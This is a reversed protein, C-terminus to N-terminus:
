HALSLAKKLSHWLFSFWLSGKSAYRSLGTCLIVLYWSSRLSRNFYESPEPSCYSSCSATLVISSTNFCTLSLICWTEM